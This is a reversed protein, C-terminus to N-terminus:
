LTECDLREHLEDVGYAPRVNGTLGDFIVEMFPDRYKDSEVYLGHGATRFRCDFIKAEGLSRLKELFLYTGKPNAITDADTAISILQIDNESLNKHIMKMRRNLKKFKASPLLLDFHTDVSAKVWSWDAGATEFGSWVRLNDTLSMRNLSHSISNGPVFSGTAKVIFEPISRTAYVPKKAGLIPKLALVLTETVPFAYPIMKDTGMGRLFPSELTIRSVARIWSAERPTQGLALMLYLSGTSHANIILKKEPNEKQAIEMVFNVDDVHNLLNDMHAIGVPLKLLQSEVSTDKLNDSELKETLAQKVKKGHKEVFDSLPVSNSLTEGYGQFDLIYIPGFGKEILDHAMEVNLRRYGTFGPLLVLPRDSSKGEFRSVIQCPGNKVECGESRYDRRSNWLRDLEPVDTKALTNKLDEYSRSELLPLVKERTRTNLKEEPMAWLTSSAVVLLCLLTKM